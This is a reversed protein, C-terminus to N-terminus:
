KSFEKPFHLWFRRLIIFIFVSTLMITIGAAAFGTAILPLLNNLEDM